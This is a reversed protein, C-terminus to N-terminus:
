LAIGIQSSRSIYRNVHIKDLPDLVRSNSDEPQGSSPDHHTTSSGLSLSDDAEFDPTRITPHSSEHESNGEMFTRSYQYNPQKYRNVIAPGPSLPLPPVDSDVLLHNSRAIPSDLYTSAPTQKGSNPLLNTATSPSSLIFSQRDKSIPFSGHSSHQNGKLRRLRHRCFCFFLSTLALICVVIAAAVSGGIIVNANNSPSSIKNSHMTPTPCRRGLRPCHHDRNNSMTSAHGATSPAAGSSASASGLSPTSQAEEEVKAWSTASEMKSSQVSPHESSRSTEKPPKIVASLRHPPSNSVGISTPKKTTFNVSTFSAPSSRSQSPAILTTQKSHTMSISTHIVSDKETNTFTVASLSAFKMSSPIKGSDSTFPPVHSPAPPAHVLSITPLNTPGSGVATSSTHRGFSKTRSMSTLSGERSITTPSTNMHPHWPLSSLVKSQLLLFSGKVYQTKFTLDFEEDTILFRSSYSMESTSEFTPPLVTRYSSESGHLDDTTFRTNPFM